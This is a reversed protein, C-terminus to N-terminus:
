WENSSSLSVSWEKDWFDFNLMARLGKGVEYVERLDIHNAGWWKGTIM